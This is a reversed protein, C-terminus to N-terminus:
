FVIQVLFEGVTQNSFNTNNITSVSAQLKLNNNNMYKSLGFTYSSYDTLLSNLNSEFEPTASEYRVDFSLGKKTVYGLQLNYTDGLFLFESIQEPVLIQTAAADVYNINLSSASANAYESLFSFGKYKLLLDIYVQSYDPLQDRGNADYLMFDGHGEGTSHSAGKNKSVAGGAVMKLQQEHAIDASTVDNGKSFYGLPYVDLRGGIKLGGLDTDRSDAGFSNRGDGSTVAFMPVIGFSNGFKSELFLGFERGTRSLNQSLFSRDTFQLRDERFGMERNNLFTQKQGMSIIIRNTPHYAVWADLLPETLSFDTQILFSVKEAIAKGGFMLFSRKSIYQNTAELGDTKSYKYAPQIFGGINFQYNGENFSFNLGSGLEFSAVNKENGDQASLLVSIFLFIIILPQKKM